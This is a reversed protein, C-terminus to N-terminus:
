SNDVSKKFISLYSTEHYDIWNSGLQEMLASPCLVCPCVSMRSTALLRKKRVSRVAGYVTLSGQSATELHM